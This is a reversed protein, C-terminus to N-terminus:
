LDAAGEEAAGSREAGEPEETSIGHKRALRLADELEDQALDAEYEDREDLATRLRARAQRVRERAAEAFGGM